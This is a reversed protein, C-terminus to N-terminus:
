SNRKRKTTVIVSLGFFLVATAILVLLSAWQPFLTDGFYFHIGLLETVERPVYQLEFAENVMIQRLISASHSPPFIKIFFQVAPPLSGMPVYIGMLFGILSGVITSIVSFANMTKVLSVFFFLFSSSVFTSLIIMGLVKMLAVFSVISGGYYLIYAEALVFTLTSMIIGIINASIVYSIVIKWRKIPATEFDRIVKKTLDDVMQGLSGLTTTVTSTAIVGAMIWSDTLFRAADGAVGGAGEILEGLFLIYLGFIVFVGMMSFFVTAKDRFYLKMNRRVLNLIM